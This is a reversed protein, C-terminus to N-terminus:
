IIYENYRKLPIYENDKSAPTPNGKAISEPKQLVAVKKTPAPEPRPPIMGYDSAISLFTYHHSNSTVPKGGTVFRKRISDEYAKGEPTKFM